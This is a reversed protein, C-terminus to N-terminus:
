LIADCWRYCCTVAATQCIGNSYICNKLQQHHVSLGFCTSRQVLIFLKVYCACRTPQVIPINMM